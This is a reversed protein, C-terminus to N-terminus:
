NSRRTNGKDVTPHM